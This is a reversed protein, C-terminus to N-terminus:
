THIWKGEAWGARKNANFVLGRPVGPFWVWLIGPGWFCPGEAGNRFRARLGQCHGSSDGPSPAAPNKAWWRWSLRSWPMSRRCFESPNRWKTPSSARRGRSFARPKRPPQRSGMSSCTNQMMYSGPSVHLAQRHPLDNKRRKSTNSANLCDQAEVHNTQVVKLQTAPVPLTKVEQDVPNKFM